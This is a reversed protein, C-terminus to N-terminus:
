PLLRIENINRKRKRNERVTLTGRAGEYAGTGGVIPVSQPRDSHRVLGHAHIQGDRLRFTATVTVTGQGARGVVVSMGDAAGVRRGSAPDLLKEGTTFFSDGPSFGRRGVDVQATRGSDFPSAFTLTRAQSQQAGAASPSGTTAIAASGAAALAAAATAATALPRNM